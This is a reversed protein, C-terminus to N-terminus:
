EFLVSSTNIEPNINIYIKHKYKNNFFYYLAAHHHVFTQFFTIRYIKLSKLESKIRLCNIICSGKHVPRNRSINRKNSLQKNQKGNESPKAPLKAIGQATIRQPTNTAPRHYYFLIHFLLLTSSLFFFVAQRKKISDVTCNLM